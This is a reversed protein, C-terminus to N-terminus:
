TAEKERTSRGRGAPSRSEREFQEGLRRTARYLRQSAAHANCGLVVAIESFPLEEWVALLLIERDAPRLSELARLLHEDEERRVVIVEPSPASERGIGGIRDTLRSARRRSRRENRLVNGAVRYLWPLTAEDDPVDDIRRWAVLFTEATCDRASTPDVRRKFYAYIQEHHRDFVAEYRQEADTNQVPMPAM